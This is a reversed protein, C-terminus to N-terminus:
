IVMAGLPGGDDLYCKHCVEMVVGSCRVMSFDCEYCSVYCGQFLMVVSSYCLLVPIVYCGQFLMVVSSYCLLVPIVYCGQFLMAVTLLWVLRM